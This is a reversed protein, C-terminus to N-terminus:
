AWSMKWATWGCISGRSPLMLGTTSSREFSTKAKNGGIDVADGCAQDELALLQTVTAVKRDEDDADSTDSDVTRSGVLTARPLRVSLAPIM